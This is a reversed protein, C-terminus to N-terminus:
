NVSTIVLFDQSSLIEKEEIIVVAYKQCFASGYGFLLITLYLNSLYETWQTIKYRPIVIKSFSAHIFVFWAFIKSM